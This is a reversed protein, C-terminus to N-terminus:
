VYSYRYFSHDYLNYSSFNQNFKTEIPLALSDNYSSEWKLSSQYTEPINAYHYFTIKM